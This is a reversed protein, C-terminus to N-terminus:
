SVRLYRGLAFFSGLLGTAMGGILIFLGYNLPLFSIQVYQLPLFSQHVLWGACLRFSGYLAILALVAGLLGQVIGEFLFPIRIFLNSAGVLKMIEIEERRAYVTLRITNSVIFITAFVIITGITWAVTNVFNFFSEYGEIWDKAYEVEDVGPIRELNGALTRLREPSQYGVKLRIEFSAPLPNEKLSGFVHAQGPFIEQLSRIAEEPSIFSVEEVEHFNMIKQRVATTEDPPLGDKIYVAVPVQRKWTDLYKQLTLSIM